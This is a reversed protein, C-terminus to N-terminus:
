YLDFSYICEYLFVERQLLQHNIYIKKFVIMFNQSVPGEHETESRRCKNRNTMMHLATYHCWRSSSLELTTSIHITFLCQMKKLHDKTM